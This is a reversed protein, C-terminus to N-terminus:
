RTIREIAKFNLGLALAQDKFSSDNTINTTKTKSTITKIYEKALRLNEEETQTPKGINSNEQPNTLSEPDEFNALLEKFSKSKNGQM